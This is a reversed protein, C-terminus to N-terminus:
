LFFCLAAEGKTMPPAVADSFRASSQETGAGRGERKPIPKTEATGPNQKSLHKKVSTKMM